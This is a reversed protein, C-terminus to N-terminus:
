RWRWLSTLSAPFPASISAHLVHPTSEPLWYSAPFSVSGLPLFPAIHHVLCAAVLVSLGTLQENRAQLPHFQIATLSPRPPISFHSIRAPFLSRYLGQVPGVSPPPPAGFPWHVSNLSPLTSPHFRLLSFTFIVRVTANDLIAMFIAWEPITADIDLLDNIKLLTKKLEKLTRLLPRQSKM